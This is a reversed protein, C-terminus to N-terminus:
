QNLQELLRRAYGSDPDLAVAKKVNALAADKAGAMIDLQALMLYSGADDPNMEINLNIIARAGDMDGQSQALVEAVTALSSATFNYAGSGYYEARLERYRAIGTAVDKEQIVELLVRDLALPTEVGHHCTVCRVTFDNEHTAAPLLNSNIEQVMRMMGRAIEKKELKDSDWDISDFDGPVVQVHCSTCNVGLADSFGKMVGVLDRKGIDQPLVKLNHFTDPVGAGAGSVLLGCLVWGSLLRKM